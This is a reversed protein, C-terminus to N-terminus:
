RFTSIINNFIIPLMVVAYPVFIFVFASRGFGPFGSRIYLARALSAFLILFSIVAIDIVLLEPFGGLTLAWKALPGFEYVQHSFNFHLAAFTSAYDMAALICVFQILKSEPWPWILRSVKEIPKELKRDQENAKKLRTKLSELIKHLKNRVM